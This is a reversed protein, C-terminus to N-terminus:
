DPLLKILGAWDSIGVAVIEDEKRCNLFHLTRFSGRSNDSRDPNSATYLYQHRGPTMCLAWPSGVTDYVAALTLSNTTPMSGCRTADAAPGVRILDALPAELKRRRGV